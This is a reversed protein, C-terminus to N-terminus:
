PLGASSIRTRSALKWQGMQSLTSRCASESLVGVFPELQDENLLGRELASFYHNFKSVIERTKGYRGYVESRKPILTKKAGPAQYWLAGGRTEKFAQQGGVGRWLCGVPFYVSLDLCFKVM